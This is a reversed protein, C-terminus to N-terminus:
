LGLLQNKITSIQLQIQSGCALSNIKNVTFCATDDDLDAYRELPNVMM